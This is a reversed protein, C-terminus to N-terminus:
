RSAPPNAPATEKEADAAVDDGPEDPPKVAKGKKQENDYDRYLPLYRYYVELTLISLSTNFLRGGSSSWRDPVPEIPDWSGKACTESADQTDILGERVRLNWREWDKNKMNHLLQTAYYWYYINREQSQELHKAIVSAGKVLPPFDRPWGLIQRAVLAEATMVPTPERGVMYSYTTRANDTASEDLFKSCLKLVRKSVKIGAMGASRIAFINWGFVSVDGPQGPAYRWGGGGRDQASIIFRIAKEAPIRLKEDRSLGYAECLAMSGIAHSYLWPMGPAGVYLDGNKQQHAVLWELGKRVTIQHRNKANHTYGAALFPLLGLGTAATDSSVRGPGSCLQGRCQEVHNLTWSGDARQHRVLWQLGEEVSAESKATGGERRVLMARTPGTRGSFPATIETALDPMRLIAESGPRSISSKRDTKPGAVEPAYKVLTPIEPAAALTPVVETTILSLSPPDPNDEKTFPDGSRDAPVLSTVDGLQTDIAAIERVPPQSKQRIHVVLAFLLILLAHLLFSLGWSPVSRLDDPDLEGRALNRLRALNAGVLPVTRGPFKPM